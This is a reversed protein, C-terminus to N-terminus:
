IASGLEDATYPLGSFIKWSTGYLKWIIKPNPTKEVYIKANTTKNQVVIYMETEVEISTSSLSKINVLNLRYELIKYKQFRALTVAELDSKMNPTGAINTFDDAIYAMFQAARQTDSLTNNELIARLQPYYATVLQLGEEVSGPVLVRAGTDINIRYEVRTNDAKKLILYVLTEYDTILTEVSYGSLDTGLESFYNSWKLNTNSSGTDSYTSADSSGDWRFIVPTNKKNNFGASIISGDKLMVFHSLAGFNRCFSTRAFTTTNIKTIANDNESAHEWHVLGFGNLGQRIINRAQFNDPTTTWATAGNFIEGATKVTEGIKISTAVTDKALLVIGSPNASQVASNLITGFDTQSGAATEIIQTLTDTAGGMLTPNNFFELAVRAILDTTSGSGATVPTVTKTENAKLDTAAHFIRNGSISANNLVVQVVVPKAPVAGFSAEATGANTNIEIEKVLKYYPTTTNGPNAVLVVIKVTYATTAARISSVTEPSLVVNLNAYGTAENITATEVASPNSYCGTFWVLVALLLIGPLHKFKM